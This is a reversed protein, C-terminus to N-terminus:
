DFDDRYNVGTNNDSMTIWDVSGTGLFAVQLFTLTGISGNYKVAHKLKNNIYINLINNSTVIKLDFWQKTDIGLSDLSQTSTYIKEQGLEQFTGEKTEGVRVKIYKIASPEMLNFSLIGKSYPKNIGNVDIGVDYAPLGGEAPSNKLRAKLTFNDGNIKFNEVKKFGSLFSGKELYAYPINSSNIHFIGNKIHSKDIEWNYTGIFGIIKKSYMPLYYTKQFSDIKIIIDRGAAMTFTHSVEGKNGQLNKVPTDEGFNISASTYSVKSFDYKITLTKMTDNLEKPSFSIKCENFNIAKKANYNKTVYLIFISLSITITLLISILSYVKKPPVNNIEDFHTQALDSERTETNSQATNGEKVERTIDAEDIISLVKEILLIKTSIKKISDATINNELANWLNTKHLIFLCLLPLTSNKVGVENAQSLNKLSDGTVSLGLGSGNELFIKLDKLLSENWDTVTFDKYAKTRLYFPKIQAFSFASHIIKEVQDKTSITKQDNM